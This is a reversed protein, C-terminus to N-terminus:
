AGKLEQELQAKKMNLYFNTHKEAMAEIKLLHDKLEGWTQFGKIELIRKRANIAKENESDHHTWFHAGFWCARVINEPCYRLRPHSAKGLLHMNGVRDCKTGFHIECGEGRQKKIVQSFLKDDDILLEGRSSRKIKRHYIKM